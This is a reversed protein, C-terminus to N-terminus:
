RFLELGLYESKLFEDYSKTDDSFISNLKVNSRKVSFNSKYLRLTELINYNAEKKVTESCTNISNPLKMEPNQLEKEKLVFKELPLGQGVKVWPAMTYKSELIWTEEGPNLEDNLYDNSFNRESDM